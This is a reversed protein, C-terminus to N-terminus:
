SAARPAPARPLLDYPHRWGPLAAIREAWRRVAPYEDKGIGTEEDFFVYGALSLDAITPRPAAVFDRRELHKDVIAYAARARARFFETIPTEGTKQIGYLFRLTAFYSTFKHNDFLIWRLVERREEPTQPGFRGTTEALYDLVVGSQSLTLGGHILVPVEGMANTDARFPDARTEGNFYDVGVAEWDCGALELMLAAKYSNGSEGFGYLRYEAM